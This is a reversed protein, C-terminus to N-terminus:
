VIELAFLYRFLYGRHIIGMIARMSDTSGSRLVASRSWPYAHDDIEFFQGLGEALARWFLVEALVKLANDAGFFRLNVGCQGFAFGVPKTYGVSPM